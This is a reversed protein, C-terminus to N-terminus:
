SIINTRVKASDELFKKGTSRLNTYRPQLTTWKRELDRMQEDTMDNAHRKLDSELQDLDVELDAASKHFEVYMAALQLRVELASRSMTWASKLAEVKDYIDARESEQLIDLVELPVVEEELRRIDSVRNDLDKLLKVHLQRFIENKNSRKLM